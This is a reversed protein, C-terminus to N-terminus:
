YLWVRMMSLLRGIDVPKSLYDSAGAEICHERDKAMAKATLAIIPLNKFKEQARIRRMTEYGDIGPMMIDMLVLNIEPETELLRLAKEGNEAKITKLGKEELVKSLAFVNRMDDDVILIQKDRFVLDVDHLNTIMRQKQESMGAVMRHLFLSTEDLLREESRVGKIIISECFARLEIEQERSLERGTYIIVPPITASEAVLGKLVELGDMDPLGLDLIMCDYRKSKIKEAAEEGTRAEDARVDGNGILKIISKRLDDDDEVILLEKLKRSFVDELRGIAADLEEKTAPKRLYGLAGTRLVEMGPEDVSLIHVPIHRTNPNRKLEELVSWGDIGPLHLDLLVAGPLYETALKLGEEGDPASLCKFDKARCLKMLQGAFRLDDDVILITKDGKSIIERDDNIPEIRSSHRPPKMPAEGAKNPGKCGSPMELCNGENRKLKMPILATFTSGRGEESELIIEGGLM